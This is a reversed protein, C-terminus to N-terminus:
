YSLSLVGMANIPDAAHIFALGSSVLGRNGYHADLLNHGVLSLKAWGIEYTISATVLNYPHQIVSNASDYAMPGYRTLDASFELGIPLTYDLGVGVSFDPVEEIRNGSYNITPSAHFNDYRANTYGAKLSLELEPTALWSAEAEAGDSHASTANDVVSFIGPPSVNLISRQVQLNSWDIYFLAASLKVRKDDLLAKYGVEYQWTDEQKYSPDNADVSANSVFVAGARFGRTISAYLQTERDFFYSLAFKPQVAPYDKSSHLYTNAATLRFNYHQHEEAVRLGLTTQWAETWDVVAEGFLAASQTNQYQAQNVLTMLRPHSLATTSDFNDNENMLFVGSIWNVPHGLITSDGNLTFEQSLTDRRDFQGLLIPAIQGSFTLLRDANAFASMSTFTMGGFDYRATLMPMLLKGQSTGIDPAISSYPTALSTLDDADGVYRDYLLTAKVLWDGEQWGGTLRATGNSVDDVGDRHLTRNSIFGNTMEGQAAARFFFGSQDIPGGTALRVGRTDGSGYYLDFTSPAETAGDRPVINIVGANTNRGYLTGQPGRLIEVRELDLLRYANGYPVIMGDIAVNFNQNDSTGTAGLGRYILRYQGDGFQAVAVNPVGTVLSEINADQDRTLTANGIVDLSAPLRLEDQSRKMATVVITELGTDPQADDAMAHGATTVTALLASAATLTRAARPRRFRATLRRSIVHM